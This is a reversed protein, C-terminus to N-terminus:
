GARAVRRELWRSFIVLPIFFLLYFAAALTLPSPNATIATVSQASSLAEPLAVASGLASGKAIAIARNTLLPVALVVAQPLIVRTFLRGSRLGLARAADWQGRPVAMIAAYFIDAAFASLVAGLALVTTVFPSLSLDLYPLAFYLIIIIVLQPLTRFVDVYAAVLWRLPRSATFRLLALALGAVLGFAIICLSVLVTIGFGHLVQPLAAAMIEANFYNDILREM